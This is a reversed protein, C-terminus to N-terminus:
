ELIVAREARYYGLDSRFRYDTVRLRRGSRLADTDLPAGESDVLRTASDIRVPYDEFGDGDADLRVYRAEDLHAVAVIEGILLAGETAKPTRRPAVIVHRSEYLGTNNREYVVLTLEANPRIAAFGLPTADSRFIRAESVVTVEIDATGDGGTDLGVFLGTGFWFRRTVVGHIPEQTTGDSEHVVIRAAEYYDDDFEYDTVALTVGDQVADVGLHRGQPDVIVTEDEIKIWVDGTGDGSADLQVFLEDGRQSTQTIPGVIAVMSTDDGNEDDEGEDDDGDAMVLPGVLLAVILLAVLM